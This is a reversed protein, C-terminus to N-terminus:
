TNAAGFVCRWTTIAPPAITALANCYPATASNTRYVREASFYCEFPPSTFAEAFSSIPLWIAIGRAKGLVAGSVEPWPKISSDPLLRDVVRRGNFAKLAPWSAGIRSM